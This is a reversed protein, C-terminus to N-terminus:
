DIAENKIKDLKELSEPTPSDKMMRFIKQAERNVKDLAAASKSDGGMFLQKYKFFTWRYLDDINPHKKPRSRQRGDNLSWTDPDDALFGNAAYLDEM